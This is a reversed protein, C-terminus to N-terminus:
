GCSTGDATFAAQEAASLGTCPLFSGPGVVVTFSSPTTGTIQIVEESAGIAPDFQGCLVYSGVALNATPPGCNATWSGPPEGPSPPAANAQQAITADLSAITIQSGPPVAATTTTPTTTPVTTTTTPEETTTTVSQPLQSSGSLTSCAPPRSSTKVDKSPLWDGTDLQDWQKPGTTLGTLETCLVAVHTGSPLKITGASGPYGTPAAKVTTTGPLSTPRIIRLAKNHWAWTTSARGSPCCDADQATHFRESTMLDKGRIAVSQIQGTRGDIPGALVTFGSKRKDFLWLATTNFSGGFNCRFVVALDKIGDHNIDITLPRSSLSISFYNISDQNATSIGSGNSLTVPLDSNACMGPPLKANALGSASLAHTAAGAIGNSGIAVLKITGLIVIVGISMRVAHARPKM